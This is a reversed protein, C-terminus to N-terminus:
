THKLYDAGPEKERVEFAGNQLARQGFLLKLVTAEPVKQVIIWHIIGDQLFM